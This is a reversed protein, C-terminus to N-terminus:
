DKSYNVLDTTGIEDGVETTGIELLTYELHISSPWHIKTYIIPFPDFWTLGLDVWIWNVEIIQSLFPEELELNLGMDEYVLWLSPGM